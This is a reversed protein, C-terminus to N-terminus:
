SGTQEDPTRPRRPMRSKCVGDHYAALECGPTGCARWAKRRVGPAEVVWTPVPSAPVEADPAGSAYFAGVCFLADFPGSAADIKAVRLALDM